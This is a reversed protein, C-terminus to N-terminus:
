GRLREAMTELLAAAAPSPNARSIISLPWHIPDGEIPLLVAGANPVITAEPLVAVGLGAAVFLTVDGLDAVEATVQRTLGIAAFARDAALRNGFGVPSDVFPEGALDALHVSDRDALRHTRPVVAVLRTDLLDLVAFGFLDSRPLGMFAVDIRGLRVDDALGSSGSPSAMLQLDVLPYRAHFEGFMGPLDLFQLNTFIGVRLRGRIGAATDAVSSRVRDVAEIAARAEPVLAAGAVTLAVRKTTREFLAAGLDNELARIGASVTSQVAFLRTAARTFNLEEAVALFYELQRTEM